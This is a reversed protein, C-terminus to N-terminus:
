RPLFPLYAVFTPQRMMTGVALVASLRFWLRKRSPDDTSTFVEPLSFLVITWAAASWISPEALTAVHLTVPLSGAAAGFLFAVPEGLRVRTRRYLYLCLAALALFQPLRFAFSSSSLLASSLWLPFLRFSPHIDVNGGLKEIAVRLTVFAVALLALRLKFRVKRLIAFAAVSATLLVVDSLWLLKRFDYDLWLGRKLALLRIAKFAHVQSYQAHFLQDGNIAILLARGSLGALLIVYGSFIILDRKEVTWRDEFFVAQPALRAVAALGTTLAALIFTLVLNSAGAGFHIADFLGYSWFGVFALVTPWSIIFTGDM